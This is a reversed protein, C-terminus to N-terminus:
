QVRATDLSMVQAHEDLFQGIALEDADVALRRMGAEQRIDNIFYFKEQSLLYRGNMERQDM